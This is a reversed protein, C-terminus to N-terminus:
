FTVIRHDRDGYHIHFACESVDELSIFKGCNHLVVAIQLLLRERSDMGHVKKMRDLYRCRM